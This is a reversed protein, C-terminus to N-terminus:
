ANNNIIKSIIIKQRSYTGNIFCTKCWVIVVDSGSCEGSQLLIVSDGAKDISKNCGFCNDSECESINM